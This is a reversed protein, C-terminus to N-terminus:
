RGRQGFALHVDFHTAPSPYNWLDAVNEQTFGFDGNHDEDNVL